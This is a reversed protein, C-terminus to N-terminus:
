RKTGFYFFKNIDVDGPKYDGFRPKPKDDAVRETKVEEIIRQQIEATNEKVPAAAHNQINMKLQAIEESLRVIMSNMKNIEASFKKNNMDIILEIKKQILFDDLNPGNNQLITNEM